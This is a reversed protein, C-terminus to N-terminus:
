ILGVQIISIYLFVSYLIALWNIITVFVAVYTKTYIKGKKAYFSKFVSVNIIIQILYVIVTIVQLITLATSDLGVYPTHMQLSFEKLQIQYGCIFTLVFSLISLGLSVFSLKLYKSASHEDKESEIESNDIEDTQYLFEKNESDM